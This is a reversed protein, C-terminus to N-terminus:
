YHKQYMEEYYKITEKLGSELDWQLEYDLHEKLPEPNLAIQIHVEGPRMDVYEVEVERDWVRRVEEVIENVSANNGSGIHIIQGGLYKESHIARMFSEVVDDVYIYESKQEGDGYIYFKNGKLTEMLITPVIKQYNFPAEKPGDLWRERAGYINGLKLAIVELGFENSFLQCFKEVAAKTIKYPNIWPVDPTTPILVKKVGARKAHKLMKVTGVVNTHATLEVDYTTITEATGLVAAMHILIDKGNMLEHILGEDLVSGRVFRFNPNDRHVKIEDSEWLDLVTVKNEEELLRDVIHSPIFGAGGTVLVNMSGEM